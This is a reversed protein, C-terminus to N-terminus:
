EGGLCMKMVRAANRGCVAEIQVESYNLRALREPIVQLLEARELGHPLKGDTGDFDSGIAVHETGTLSAIYEIHRIVDDVTAIGENRLFPPYFNVGAVGGSKKIALM